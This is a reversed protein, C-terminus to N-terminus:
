ARQGESTGAVRGMPRRPVAVRIGIAFNPFVETPDILEVGNGDSYQVGPPGFSLPPQLHGAFAAAIEGM